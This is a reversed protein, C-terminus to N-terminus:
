GSPCVLRRNRMVVELVRRLATVGKPPDLCGRCSTAWTISGPHGPSHLTGGLEDPYTQHAQLAQQVDPHHFADDVERGSYMNGEDPLEGTCGSGDARQLDVTAPTIFRLTDGGEVYSFSAAGLESGAPHARPTSPTAAPPRATTSASAPPAVASGVGDDAPTTTTRCGSAAAALTLLVGWWTMAIRGM